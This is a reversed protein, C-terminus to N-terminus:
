ARGAAKQAGTAVTAYGNSMFFTQFRIAEGNSLTGSVELRIVFDGKDNPHSIVRVNRLRPEYREVTGQVSAALTNVSYPIHHYIDTLDPLGYDPLHPMVGQRANLLRVLHDQVSRRLASNADVTDIPRGDMFRGNLVDFLAYSAM